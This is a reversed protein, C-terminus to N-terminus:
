RFKTINSLSSFICVQHQLVQACRQFRNERIKGGFNGRGKNERRIRLAAGTYNVYQKAAINIPICFKSKQVLRASELRLKKKLLYLEIRNKTNRENLMNKLLVSPIPLDDDFSPFSDDSSSEDDSPELGIM